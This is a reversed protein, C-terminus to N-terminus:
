HNEPTFISTEAKKQLYNELYQIRYRIQTIGTNNYSDLFHSVNKIFISYESETRSLNYNSFMPLKIFHEILLNVINVNFFPTIISLIGRQALQLGISISNLGIDKIREQKQVKQYRLSVFLLYLCLYDLERESIKNQLYYYWIIWIYPEEEHLSYEKIRIGIQNGYGYEDAHKEVADTTDQLKADISMLLRSLEKIKYERIQEQSFHREKIYNTFLEKSCNVSNITNYNNILKLDSQRSLKCVDWLHLPATYEDDIYRLCEVYHLYDSFSSISITNIDIDKPSVCLNKAYSTRSEGCLNISFLMIQSYNMGTSERLYDQAKIDDGILDYILALYFADEITRKNAKEFFSTAVEILYENSHPSINNIICLYYYMHMPCIDEEWNYPFLLFAGAKDGLYYTLVTRLFLRDPIKNNAGLYTLLDIYDVICNFHIKVDYDSKNPMHGRTFLNYIALRSDPVEFFNNVLEPCNGGESVQYIYGYYHNGSHYLLCNRIDNPLVTNILKLLETGHVNDCLLFKIKQRLSILQIPDSRNVGSSYQQILYSYDKESKQSLVELLKIRQISHTKWSSFNEEIKLLLELESDSYM